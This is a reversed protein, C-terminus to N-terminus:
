VALISNCRSSGRHEFGRQARNSSRFPTVQTWPLHGSPCTLCLLLLPATDSHLLPHQTLSWLWVRDPGKLKTWSLCHTYTHTQDATVMHPQTHKIQNMVRSSSALKVRVHMWLCGPCVCDCLCMWACIYSQYHSVWVTNMWGKLWVLILRACYYPQNSFNSM